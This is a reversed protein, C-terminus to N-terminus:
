RTQRSIEGGQRSIGGGQRDLYEGVKYAQIMFIEGGQRSVPYKVVLRFVYIM